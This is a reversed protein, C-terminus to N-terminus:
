KCWFCVCVCVCYSAASETILPNIQTLRGTKWELAEEPQKTTKTSIRHSWKILVHHSRESCVSWSRLQANLSTTAAAKLSVKGASPVKVRKLLSSTSKRETPYQWADVVSLQRRGKHRHTPHERDLDPFMDFKASFKISARKKLRNFVRESLQKAYETSHSLKMSELYVFYANELHRYQSSLASRQWQYRVSHCGAASCSAVHRCRDIMAFHSFRRLADFCDYPRCKYKLLWYWLSASLFLDVCINFLHPHGKSNNGNWRNNTTQWSLSRSGIVIQWHVCSQKFGSLFMMSQHAWALLLCLPITAWNCFGALWSAARVPHPQPSPVNLNSM